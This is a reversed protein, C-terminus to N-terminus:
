RCDLMFFCGYSSSNLQPRSGALALQWPMGQNFDTSVGMCTPEASCAALAEAPTEFEASGSQEPYVDGRFPGAAICGDLVLPEAFTHTSCLGGEIPQGLAELGASDLRYSSAEAPAVSATKPTCALLVTFMLM